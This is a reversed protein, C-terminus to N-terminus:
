PDTNTRIRTDAAYGHLHRRFHVAVAAAREHYRSLFMMAAAGSEYSCWALQQNLVRCVGDVRQSLTGKRAGHQYVVLLREPVSLLLLVEAPRVHEVGTEKGTAVGVNPDLFLDGAHKIEDFYQERSLLYVTHPILQSKDIRLLRAYLSIDEPEWNSWDSAMPDVAFNRLVSSQQLCGFLSGKWYDLADGLHARDM